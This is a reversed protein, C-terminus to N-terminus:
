FTSLLRDFIDRAVSIVQANASFLQEFRILDAAEDDLSVGSVSNRLSESQELVKEAADRNIKASSTEIGVREVLAGYSQSFTVSGGQATKQNQLGTLKLGNRNDLAANHNFDLTFRDGAEPTGQLTAQIGLFTSQAFDEASTDGFLMSEQSYTSLQLGEALSVDVKGGVTIHSLPGGGQGDLNVPPNEGDGVNLSNGAIASLSISLDDGESSHIRLENNGTSPDGAAVAYINQSQFVDSQNIRDAVYQYFAAEDSAPDPVSDSIVSTGTNPDVTYELLDQGNLQVQLSNNRTLNLDSLEAYTFANAEVGPEQGLTNAIERATANQQTHLTTSVAPVGPAGPRSLTIAEAPYGNGEPTAGISQVRGDPLGAMPGNTSVLTSGPQDPFLNKTVGPVYRQDRIPPQLHVPNGPDSNDMIDYSYATRFVAILPPSLEGSEAFLPLPQGSSDKTALVEGASIVGDGKNNLSADTVLPSAFAVSQPSILESSFDAAGNRTPQLLFSDGSQFGGGDFRLALGDFEVDFPLRGSMPGSAVVQDDDLRTIRYQGPGDFQLQYDSTTVQKSDHIFLSIDRQDSQSNSANGIVRNSAVRSDNVDYFFLGGFENNLDLGQQHAQNFTDAMVIGVRGLENYVSDLAEDRFRILGGLEGGKILGTIDEAGSRNNIFVNAKSGNQPNENLVLESSEGGIVLTQGGGIIVNIQGNNQDFTQVPIMNSLKKLAEDRQDLLDNPMAGGGAGVADTIKLNLQAINKALANVRDVAVRMGADVGSEISQLRAHISNFRDALNEAESVVLQRAPISSPDDTGNQMASFFTNLGDSLGTSADSLLNDLQSVQDYYGSLDAYLSSDIRLQDIVFDDVVRDISQVHAGNGVYGSQYLTAPNSSPDVRQRSYGETGSNAINHGITSLASQSIRLGSVGVNLLNNSM